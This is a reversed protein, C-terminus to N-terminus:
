KIAWSAANDFCDNPYDKTIFPFSFIDGEETQYKKALYDKFNQNSPFINFDTNGEILSEPYIVVMRNTKENFAICWNMKSDKRM